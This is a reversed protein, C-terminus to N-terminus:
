PSFGFFDFEQEDELIIAQGYFDMRQLLQMCPLKLFSQPAFLLRNDVYREFCTHLDMNRVTLEFTRRWVSELSVIVMSCLAPSLPSGMPSGRTQRIARTHVGFIQMNLAHHIIDPVDALRLNVQQKARRRRVGRFIRLAQQTERLDVTFTTDHGAGQRRQYWLLLLKWAAFFQERSANTIFGSLDQNRCGLDQLDFASDPNQM